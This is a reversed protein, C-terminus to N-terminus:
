RGQWSPPRKEMFARPGEQADVSTAMAAALPAVFDYSHALGQRLGFTVTRKIAEVAMPSCALVM